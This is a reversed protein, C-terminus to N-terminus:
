MRTVDELVKDDKRFQEQFGRAFEKMGTAMRLMEEEIRDKEVAGDREQKDYDVAGGKPKSEKM